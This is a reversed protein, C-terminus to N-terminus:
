EDENAAQVTAGPWQSLYYASMILICHYVLPTITSGASQIGNLQIRWIATHAPVVPELERGFM